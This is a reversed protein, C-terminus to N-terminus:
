FAIGASLGGAINYRDFSMSRDDLVEVHLGPVTAAYSSQLRGGGRATLWGGTGWIKMKASRSVPMSYELRAEVFVAPSRLTMVSEALFLYSQSVDARLRIRAKVWAAAIPSAILSVTFRRGVAEVGAYPIWLRSEVNGPLLAVKKYQGVQARKLPDPKKITLDFHDWRVGAIVGLTKWPFYRVGSEAEMWLLPHLRWTENESGVGSISGLLYQVVNGSASAYLRLSPLLTAEIGAEGIWLDTDPLTLQISEPSFSKSEELSVRLPIPM